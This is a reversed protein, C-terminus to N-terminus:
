NTRKKCLNHVLIPWKLSWFHDCQHEHSWFHDNQTGFITCSLTKHVLIPWKLSWFHDELRVFHPSIVTSRYGNTGNNTCSDLTTFAFPGHFTTYRAPSTTAQRSPLRSKHRIYRLIFSYFNLAMLNKARVLCTRQAKMAAAYSEANLHM